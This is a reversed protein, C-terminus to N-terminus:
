CDGIIGLSDHIGLRMKPTIPNSQKMSEALCVLRGEGVNGEGLLERLESATGVETSLRFSDIGVNSAGKM